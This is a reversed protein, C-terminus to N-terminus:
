TGSAKSSGASTQDGYSRKPKKDQHKEDDKMVQEAQSPFDSLMSKIWEKRECLGWTVINEIGRRLRKLQEEDSLDYSRVQNMHYGDYDSDEILRWHVYINAIYTMMCISFIINNVDPGCKELDLKGALHQFQRAANVLTSGGELALDEADALTGDAGKFEVVAFTFYPGAQVSAWNEAPSLSTLEAMMTFLSEDLEFCLDPKPKMLRPIHKNLQKRQEKTLTLDPVAGELFPQKPFISLGDGTWEQENSNGNTKVKHTRPFILDWVQDVYRAKAMRVNSEIANLAKKASDSKMDVTSEKKMIEEVAQGTEPYNHFM